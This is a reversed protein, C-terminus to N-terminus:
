SLVGGVSFRGFDINSRNEHFFFKEFFRRLGMWLSFILVTNQRYYEDFHCLLRIMETYIAIEIISFYTITPSCAHHVM